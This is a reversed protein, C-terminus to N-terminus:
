AAGSSGAGGVGHAPRHGATPLKAGLGTHRGKTTQGDVVATSSGGAALEKKETAETGGGPLRAQPASAGSGTGM